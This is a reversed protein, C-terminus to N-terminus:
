KIKEFKVFVHKNNKKASTKVVTRIATAVKGSRGIIKGFDESSVRVTYLTERDKKTELIEVCDPDNVLNKVIFEVLEKM